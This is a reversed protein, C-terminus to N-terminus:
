SNNNKLNSLLQELEQKRPLLYKRVAWQNLYYVGGCLLFWIAFSKAVNFIMEKTPLVVVQLHLHITFVTVGIIVPLLYWWFVNKLLWVQHAVQRLSIEICGILPDSFKPIKKKQIFRDIVMFLGVFLCGSAPFYLSWVSWKFAFYSFFVALAFAIGAERVDRWFICAEFLEKNRQIEKLLIDADIRLKFGGQQSQWKKQLEDFNM